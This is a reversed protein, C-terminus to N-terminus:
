DNGAPKMGQELRFSEKKERIMGILLKEFNSIKDNREFQIEREDEGSHSVFNISM